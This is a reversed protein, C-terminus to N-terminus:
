GARLQGLWGGVVEELDELSAVTVTAFPLDSVRETFWIRARVGGDDDPGPALGFQPEHADPGEFWVRVILVSVRPIHLASDVPAIM